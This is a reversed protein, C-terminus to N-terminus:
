NRVFGYERSRIRFDVDGSRGLDNDEALGSLMVVAPSRERAVGIGKLINPSTGSSNITVPLDDSRAHAGDRSTVEAAETLVALTDFHSQVRGGMADGENLQRIV